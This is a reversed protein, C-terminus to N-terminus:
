IKFLTFLRRLWAPLRWPQRSTGDHLVTPVLHGLM